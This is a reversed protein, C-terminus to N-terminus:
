RMVPLSPVAAHADDVLGLVGPQRALDRQLEQGVLEGVVRVGDAAERAFGLGDRVSLWALM